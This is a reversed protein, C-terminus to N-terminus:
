ELSDLIEQIALKLTDSSKSSRVPLDLVSRLRKKVADIKSISATEVDNDWDKALSILQDKFVEPVRIAKTPLNKWKPVSILSKLTNPHKGRNDYKKGLERLAQSRLMNELFFDIVNNYV